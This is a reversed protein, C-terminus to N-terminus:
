YILGAISWLSVCFLGIFATLILTAGINFYMLKRMIIQSNVVIQVSLDDLYNQTAVHGDPPYYREFIRAKFAAPSFQAADGFYLLSRSQEPDKNIASLRVRPLFSVIAFLAACAFISPSASHFGGSLVLRLTPSLQSHAM